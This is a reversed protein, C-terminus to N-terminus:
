YALLVCLTRSKKADAESIDAATDHCVCVLVCLVCVSYMCVCVCVDAPHTKAM